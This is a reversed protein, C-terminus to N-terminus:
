TIQVWFIGRYFITFRFDSWISFLDICFNFNLIWYTSKLSAKFIARSLILPMSSQKTYLILILFSLSFLRSFISCLVLCIVHCPSRVYLYSSNWFLSSLFHPLFSHKYHCLSWSSELIIWSKLGCVWFAHYVGFLIYVYVFLLFFVFCFIM